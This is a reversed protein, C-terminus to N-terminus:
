SRENFLEPVVGRRADAEWGSSPAAVAASRCAAGALFQRIDRAIPRTTTMARAQQRRQSTSWGDVMPATSLILRRPRMRRSTGRLERRNVLSEPGISSWPGLVGPPNGAVPMVIQTTSPAPFPPPARRRSCVFARSTLSIACPVSTGRKVPTTGRRLRRTSASRSVPVVPIAAIGQIHRAGPSRRLEQNHDLRDRTRTGDSV